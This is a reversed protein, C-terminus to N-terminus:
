AEDKIFEKLRHYLKNVPLGMVNYYSGSISDIGVAGIWEQIGYAGAKDLPQYQSVYYNIEDETLSGFEVETTSQFVDMKGVKRLCVGTIVEHKKGSLRRLMKIAESANNPKGLVDGNEVVITDATILLDFPELKQHALSKKEALYSAINSYDMSADFKEDVDIPAVTFQLNILKLLEARRSSQSGLIVKYRATNLM